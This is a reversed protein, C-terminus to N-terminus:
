RAVNTVGLIRQEIVALESAAPTVFELGHVMLGRAPWVRPRGDPGSAAEVLFRDDMYVARRVARGRAVDDRMVWQLAFGHEIAFSGTPDAPTGPRPQRAATECLGDPGVSEECPRVLGFCPKGDDDLAAHALRHLAAPDSDGHRAGGFINYSTGSGHLQLGTTGLESTCIMLLRADLYAVEPDRGHGTWSGFRVGQRDHVRFM